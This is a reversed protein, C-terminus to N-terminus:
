IKKGNVIYPYLSYQHEFPRCTFVGFPATGAIILENIFQTQYGTAKINSQNGYVAEVSQTYLKLLVNNHGFFGGPHRYHVVPLFIVWKVDSAYGDFLCQLKHAAKDFQLIPNYDRQNTDVIIIHLLLLLMKPIIFM